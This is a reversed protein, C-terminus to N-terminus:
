APAHSIGSPSVKPLAGPAALWVSSPSSKLSKMWGGDM